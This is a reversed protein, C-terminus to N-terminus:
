IRLNYAEIIKDCYLQTARYVLHNVGWIRQNLNFWEVMSLKDKDSYKNADKLKNFETVNLNSIIPENDEYEYGKGNEFQEIMGFVKKRLETYTIDTSGLHINYNRLQKITHFLPNNTNIIKLPKSNINNSELDRSIVEEISVFEYMAARLLFKKTNVKNEGHFKASFYLSGEARELVQNFSTLAAERQSGLQYLFPSKSTDINPLDQFNLVTIM